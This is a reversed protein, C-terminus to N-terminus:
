ALTELGAKSKPFYRRVGAVFIAQRQIDSATLVNFKESLECVCTGSLSRPTAVM